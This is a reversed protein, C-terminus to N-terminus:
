QLQPRVSALRNAQLRQGHSGVAVWFRPNDSSQMSIWTYGMANWPRVDRSLNDLVVDGDPLRAVLVLHGQGSSTLVVALRLASQPWGRAILQHRKTVAYDNCDGAAPSVTWRATIPDTSKRLPSIAENVSANVDRLMEMARDATPLAQVGTEADCEARYNMCFKVFQLPALTNDFEEIFATRNTRSVDTSADTEARAAGGAFAIATALMPAFLLRM